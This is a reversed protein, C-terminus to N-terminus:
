IRLLSTRTGESKKDGTGCGHGGFLDVEGDDVIEHAVWMGGDEGWESVVGQGECFQGKQKMPCFSIKLAMSSTVWDYLV